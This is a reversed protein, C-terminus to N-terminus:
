MRRGLLTSTNKEGVDESVTRITQNSIIAMKVPILYLKLTKKIQKEKIALSM